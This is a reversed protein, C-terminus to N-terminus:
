ECYITILSFEFHQDNYITKLTQKREKVATSDLRVLIWNSQSSKHPTHIRVDTQCYVSCTNHSIYYFPVNMTSMHKAIKYIYSRQCITYAQTHTRAEMPWTHTHAQIIAFPENVIVNICEKSPSIM